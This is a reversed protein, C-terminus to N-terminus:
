CTLLPKNLSQREAGSYRFQAGPLLDVLIPLNNAPPLGQLIQSVTPWPGASPYGAFGHVTTGATHSLLQRLTLRPNWGDNSPVRWSALYDNVDADLDLKRSEVLKMVALAFVPKSISGAQFPTSPTVADPTGATRKGFGRAWVVELNDIAAVSVGPTAGYTMREALSCAPVSRGPFPTEPRLDLCIRSVCGDVDETLRAVM